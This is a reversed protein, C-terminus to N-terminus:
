PRYSSQNKLHDIYSKVFAESMMRDGKFMGDITIYYEGDEDQEIRIEPIDKM